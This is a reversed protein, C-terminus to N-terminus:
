VLFKRRGLSTRKNRQINWLEAASFPKQQNSHFSTALIENVETTLTGLENKSLRKFLNTQQKM